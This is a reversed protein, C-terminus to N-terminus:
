RRYGTVFDHGVDRERYKRNVRKYEGKRFYIYEGYPLCSTDTHTCTCYTHVCRDDYWWM